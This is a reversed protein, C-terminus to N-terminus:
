PPVVGPMEQLTALGPSARLLPEGMDSNAGDAPKTRYVPPLDSPKPEQENFTKQPNNKFNQSKSYIFKQSKSDSKEHYTPLVPFKKKETHSFTFHISISLILHFHGGILGLNFESHLQLFTNSFRSM